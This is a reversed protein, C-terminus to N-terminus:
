GLKKFKIKKAGNEQLSCLLAATEIHIESRKLVRVEIKGFPAKSNQKNSM